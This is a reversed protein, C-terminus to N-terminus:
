RGSSYRTVTLRPGRPLKSRLTARHAPRTDVVVPVGWLETLQQGVIRAIVESAGGVANPVIFRIPRDPYNSPSQACADGLAVIQSGLLATLLAFGRKTM